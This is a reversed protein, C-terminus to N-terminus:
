LTIGMDELEARSLKSIDDFDWTQTVAEMEEARKEASQLREQMAIIPDEKGLGCISSLVQWLKNM